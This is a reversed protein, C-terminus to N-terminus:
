LTQIGREALLEDFTKVPIHLDMTLSLATLSVQFSRPYTNGMLEAIRAVHEGLLANVSEIHKTALRTVQSQILGYVDRGFALAQSKDPLKGKHAVDNRFEIM